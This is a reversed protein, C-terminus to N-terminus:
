WIVVKETLYGNPSSVKIFYLGSNQINIKYEGESNTPINKILQGGITYISINDVLEPTKLTFTKNAPNPYVNIVIDTANIDNIGTAYWVFPETYTVCGNKERTGVVYTGSKKPSHSFWNIGEIEEDDVFWRWNKWTSPAELIGNNLELKPFSTQNCLNIKTLFNFEENRITARHTFNGFYVSDGVEKTKSVGFSYLSNNNITLAKFTENGTSIIHKYWKLNFASDLKVLVADSESFEETNPIEIKPNNQLILPSGSFSVGAYINGQGDVTFDGITSNGITNGFPKAHLIKGNPSRKSILGSSGSNNLLLFNNNKDFLFKTDNDDSGTGFATLTLWKTNGSSDLSAIFLQENFAGDTNTHSGFTLTNGKFYGTVVINNDPSIITKFIRLRTKNQNSNSHSIAKLWALDGKPTFKAAFLQHQFPKGEDSFNKLEIGDITLSSLLEGFLYINGDDDASINGRIVVDDDIVKTMVVNAASDLKVIIIIPKEDPNNIVKSGFEIIKSKSSKFLIFFDDNNNKTFGVTNVSSQGYTVIPRQWLKVGNAAFKTIGGFPGTYINGDETSFAKSVVNSNTIIEAQKVWQWEPALLDQGISSQALLLGLVISICNIINKM